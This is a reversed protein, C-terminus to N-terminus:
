NISFDGVLVTLANRFTRHVRLAPTRMARQSDGAIDRLVCLGLHRLGAGLGVQDQAERRDRALEACGIGFAVHAAERDLEVGLLAVPIQDAVVRWHEEHAVRVLEGVEDMRLLAM